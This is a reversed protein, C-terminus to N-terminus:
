NAAWEDHLQRLADVVKPGAVTNITNMQHSTLRRLVYDSVADADREKPRGIGVAVRAWREKPHKLHDTSGKVSRIGNHGRPSTEWKRVKVSGPTSELDDHVLVLGLESPRLGHRQLMEEWAARVWPGCNNMMTPSQMFTYPWAVSCMCSKKGYRESEFQPQSPSLLRQAASLAFHGASHLCQFYPGQNGLSVVLFRPTLM